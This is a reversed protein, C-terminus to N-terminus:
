KRGRRIEAMLRTVDMSSRKLAGMEKSGFISLSDAKLRKITAKARKKFRDVEAIAEQIEKIRYERNKM